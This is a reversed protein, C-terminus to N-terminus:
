GLEPDRARLDLAQEALARALHPQPDDADDEVQVLRAPKSARLRPGLVPHERDADTLGFDSVTTGDDIPTASMEIVRWPSSPGEGWTRSRAIAGLPRAFASALHVEDLVILADNAVLGPTPGATTSTCAGM